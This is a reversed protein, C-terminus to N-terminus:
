RASPLLAPGIHLLAAMTLISVLTTLLITGSAIAGKRAYFNTVIFPGTGTPLAALLLAVLAVYPKTPILWLLALTILPQAILKVFSLTLVTRNTIAPLIPSQALFLGIGILALPSAAAGTLSLFRDVPVPLKLGTMWWLLGLVPAVVVPNKLTGTVAKWLAHGLGHEKDVHAIEIIATGLALLVSLTLSAAVIAYPACQPGMALIMIPLGIYAVNCFSASLGDIAQDPVPMGRLKGILIGLVFVVLSGILSIAAFGPDWLHAWDTVAVIHFMLAPVPVWIVLRNITAADHAPVVNFRGALYGSLIILFVPAITTLTAFM